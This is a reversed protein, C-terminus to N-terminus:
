LLISCKALYNRDKIKPNTFIMDKYTLFICNKLVSTCNPYKNFKDLFNQKRKIYAFMAFSFEFLM